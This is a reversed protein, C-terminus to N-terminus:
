SDDRMAVDRVRRLKDLFAQGDTNPMFIDFRESLFFLESAKMAKEAQTKQCELKTIMAQTRRNKRKAKLTAIKQPYTEEIFLKANIFDMASVRVVEAALKWYNIAPCTDETM